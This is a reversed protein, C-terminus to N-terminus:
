PHQLSEVSLTVDYQNPDESFWVEAEVREGPGLLMLQLAAEDVVREGELLQVALNVEQLPITAENRITVPLAWEDGRKEAQDLHPELSLRPPLQPRTGQYVIVSVLLLVLLVSLARAGWEVVTPPPPPPEEPAAEEDVTRTFWRRLRNLHM